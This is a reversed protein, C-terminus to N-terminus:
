RRVRKKVSSRRTQKQKVSKHKKRYEKLFDRGLDLLWKTVTAVTAVAAGKALEVALTFDTHHPGGWPNIFRMGLDDIGYADKLKRRLKPLAHQLAKAEDWTATFSAVAIKNTAKVVTPM